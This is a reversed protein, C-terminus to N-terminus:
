LSLASPSSLCPRFSFEKPLEVQRSWGAFSFQKLGIVRAAPWVGLMFSSIQLCAAM